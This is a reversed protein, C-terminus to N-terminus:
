RTRPTGDRSTMSSPLRASDQVAAGNIVNGHAAVAIGLQEEFIRENVYPEAGFPIPRDVEALCVAVIRKLLASGGTVLDLDLRRYITWSSM